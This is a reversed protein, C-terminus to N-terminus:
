GRSFPCPTGGRWESSVKYAEKRIHLVPDDSAEIGDTLLGPNFSIKESLNEQDEPVDAVTLTGMLIRVRHPPWPRTSDAFDDGVEGISMMLSFRAPEEALDRRLAADLYDDVPPQAPNTNLVGSIPQWTFRVWRRTQDGGTVIFTHVAHYAARIYSVP